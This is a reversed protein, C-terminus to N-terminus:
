TVWNWATPPPPKELPYAAFGAAKPKMLISGPKKPNEQIKLDIFKLYNLLIKKVGREDKKNEEISCM